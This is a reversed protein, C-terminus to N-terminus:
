FGSRHLVSSFPPVPLAETLERSAGRMMILVRSREGVGTRIEHQVSPLTRGRGDIFLVDEFEAVTQDTFRAATAFDREASRREDRARIGLL